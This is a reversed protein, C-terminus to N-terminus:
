RKRERERKRERVCVCRKIVGERVYSCTNGRKCVCVCMWVCERMRDREREVSIETTHGEVYQGRECVRKREWACLCM